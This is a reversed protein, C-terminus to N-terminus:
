MIIEWGRTNDYGYNNKLIVGDGIALHETPM